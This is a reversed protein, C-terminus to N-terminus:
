QVLKLHFAHLSLSELSLYTRLEPSALTPDRGKSRSITATARTTHSYQQKLFCRRVCGRNPSTAMIPSTLNATRYKAGRPTGPPQGFECHCLSPATKQFILHQLHQTFKTPRKLAWMETSFLLAASIRMVASSGDVMIVDDHGMM